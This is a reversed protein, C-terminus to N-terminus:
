SSIENQALRYKIEAIKCFFSSKELPNHTSSENANRVLCPECYDFAKCNLCGDIQRRKMNRLRQLITSGYWINGISDNELSGLVCSQWGACPYVLGLESVCISAGGVDCIYSDPTKKEEIKRNNQESSLLTEIDNTSLRCDLNKGSSNYDGIIVYDANVQIGRVKGWDKVLEFSSYNQKMIPCSIQVPINNEVLLDIAKLTKKLSGKTKTIGDHVHEDMSYISTQVGLLPNRKMECIIEDTIHTLNSLISVSFNGERLRRLYHIFSPHLIPEGGTITFHLVNLDECEDLLKYFLEDKIFKKKNNHPIYCHICRENCISAIEVHISTLRPLPFGFNEYISNFSNDNKSPNDNEKSSVELTKDGEIVIYNERALRQLFELIDSELEETSVGDFIATAKNAIESSTQPIDTLLKYIVCGTSSIITDNLPWNHNSNYAFHKHSVLLGFHVYDRFLVHPNKKFYMDRVMFM